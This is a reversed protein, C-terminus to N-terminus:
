VAEYLTKLNGVYIKYCLTEFNGSRLTVYYAFSGRYFNQKKSFNLNKQM